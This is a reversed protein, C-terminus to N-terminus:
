EPPLLRRARRTIWTAVLAAGVAVTIALVAMLVPATKKSTRVAVEAKQLGQQTWDLVTQMQAIGAEAQQIRVELDAM